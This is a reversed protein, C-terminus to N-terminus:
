FRKWFCFISPVYTGCNPWWCFPAAIDVMFLSGTHTFSFCLYSAHLSVYQCLTSNLYSSLSSSIFCPSASFVCFSWSFPSSKSGNHILSSSSFTPTHVLPPRYFYDSFLFIFIGSEMLSFWCFQIPACSAFLFFVARYRLRTYL